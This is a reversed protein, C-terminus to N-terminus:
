VPTIGDRIHVRYLDIYNTQLRSLSAEVAQVMNKRHNGAADPDNGPLANSFKTALAVSERHGKVFEGVLRESTGNTYINATDIFNGGADRTAIPRM